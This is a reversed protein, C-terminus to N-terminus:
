FKAGSEAYHQIREPLSDLGKTLKEGPFGPLDILGEDVKIGPLIGNQHLYDTFPVQDDTQQWFTEDYFIVGSLSDRNKSATLLIQRYQRRTEPTCEVGVADFRKQCSANSEDAALVGKGDAVLHKAITELANTDM